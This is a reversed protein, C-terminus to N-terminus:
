KRKYASKLHLAGEEQSNNTESIVTGNVNWDFLGKAVPEYRPYFYDAEDPPDLSLREQRGPNANQRDYIARHTIEGRKGYEIPTYHFHIRRNSDFCGHESLQNFLQNVAEDDGLGGLTRAHIHGFDICPYVNQLEDCITLIDEVSGLQGVKGATEVFIGTQTKGIDLLATGLNDIFRNLIPKSDSNGYLPGPHLVAIDANLVECLEVTRKLTDSSRKIKEKDDSTFVIFYAAHVSLKIGYDEAATRYAICNDISTRPGYTMQLELAELGLTQLWHCIDMRNKGFPSSYFAPPYGAVGFRIM